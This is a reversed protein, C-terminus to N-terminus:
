LSIKHGPFMRQAALLQDAEMDGLKCPSVRRHVRQSLHLVNHEINNFAHAVM